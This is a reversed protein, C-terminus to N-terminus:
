PHRIPDLDKVEVYDSTTDLLRAVEVNKRGLPCTKVEGIEIVTGAEIRRLTPRLGRMTMELVMLKNPVAITPM